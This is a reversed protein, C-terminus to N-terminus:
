IIGLYGFIKISSLFADMLEDQYSDPGDADTKDPQLDFSNINKTAEAAPLRSYSTLLRYRLILYLITACIIVGSALSWSSFTFTVPAMLLSAIASVYYYFAELTFM